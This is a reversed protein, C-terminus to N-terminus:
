NCTNGEVELAGGAPVGTATTGGAGTGASSVLIGASGGAVAGTGVRADVGIGSEAGGVPGSSVAILSGLGGDDTNEVVDERVDEGVLVGAGGAAGV